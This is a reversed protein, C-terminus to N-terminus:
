VSAAKGRPFLRQYGNPLLSPKLIRSIKCEDYVKMEKTYYYDNETTYM